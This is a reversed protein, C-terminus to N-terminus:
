KDNMCEVTQSIQTLETRLEKKSILSILHLDENPDKIEIDHKVLDSRKDCSEFLKGFLLSRYKQPLELENKKSRRNPICKRDCYYYVAVDNNSIYDFITNTIKKLDSLELATADSKVESVLV